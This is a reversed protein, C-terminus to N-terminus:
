QRKVEIFLFGQVKGLDDTDRNFVLERRSDSHGTDWLLIKHVVPVMPAPAELSGEQKWFYVLGRVVYIHSNWAMLSAHQGKITTVLYGASTKDAPFFEANVMIPRGDGLLHRGNLKAAVDQLSKPDARELSDELASNKGCCVEADHIIVELSTRLVDAGHPSASVMSPLSTVEIQQDVNLLQAYAPDLLFLNVLCLALIIAFRVLRVAIM